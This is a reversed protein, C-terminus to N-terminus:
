PGAGQAAVIADFMKKAAYAPVTASNIATIAAVAQAGAALVRAVNAPAIGGLAVVPIKLTRAAEALKDVGVARSRPKSSTHFVPSFTVYDAGGEQVALADALDHASYGILFPPPAIRRAASVPLAGSNLHVGEAGAALAVDLRGNVLVPAEGAVAERVRCVLDYLERANMDKERVQVADVGGQVASRVVDPLPGFARRRSTILMLRFM